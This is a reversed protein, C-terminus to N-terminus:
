LELIVGDEALTINSLASAAVASELGAVEDDTGLHTLVYRKVSSNRAHQLVQEVDVHTSEILAYDLDALCDRIDDFSGIDSSYFLRKDAIGIEFSHCQMRNPLNLKKVLRGQAALHSNAIARLRFLDDYIFGESYGEIVIELRLNEKILYVANLYNEFPEVFEDPLYVTLTRNSNLVHLMQIVLAVEGAHDSHSHSIFIRDLRLPDFGQRLFSSTVGGGCDILSLSEGVQLLYGSCARNPNPNGSSSGLITFSNSSM